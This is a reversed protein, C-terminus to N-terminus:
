TYTFSLRGMTVEDGSELMSMEQPVLRIGNLFTGNLSNLDTIFVIGDRETFRAHIRSISNDEIVYDAQDKNKGIVFPFASLDIERQRGRIRGKLIRQEKYSNEELLVTREEAKGDDESWGRERPEHMDEGAERKMSVERAESGEGFDQVESLLDAEDSRGAGSDTRQKGRSKEAKKKLICVIIGILSFAALAIGAMCGSYNLLEQPRQISFAMWTYGFLGLGGVGLIGFFVMSAMFGEKRRRPLKEAETSMDEAEEEEPFVFFEDKENEDGMPGAVEVSRSPQAPDELFERIARIMDGEYERAKQYFGFSAMVADKDEKDAHELLFELLRDVEEKYDLSFGADYLFRVEGKRGGYIYSPELVLGEEDLLFRELEESVKLIGALLARIDEKDMTQKEYLIDLPQRSTIDFGIETEGNFSRIETPLLYKMRNEKLMTCAFEGADKVQLPDMRIVLLNKHDERRFETRM